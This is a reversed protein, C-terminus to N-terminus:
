FHQPEQVGKQFSAMLPALDKPVAHRWLFSQWKMNPRPSAQDARLDAHLDQCGPGLGLSGQGLYASQARGLAEQLTMAFPYNQKAEDSNVQWLSNFRTVGTAKM